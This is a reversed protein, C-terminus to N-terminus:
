DNEMVVIQCDEMKSKFQFKTNDLEKQLLAITAEYNEFLPGLVHHSLQNTLEMDFEGDLAGKRVANAQSVVLDM